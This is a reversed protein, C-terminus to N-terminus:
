KKLVHSVRSQTEEEMCRQAEERKREARKKQDVLLNELM